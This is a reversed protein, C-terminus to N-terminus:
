RATSQGARLSRDRRPQSPGLRRQKFRNSLWVEVSAVDSTEAAVIVAHEAGAAEVIEHQLSVWAPADGHVLWRTNGWARTPKTILRGTHVYFVATDSDRAQQRQVLRNPYEAHPVRYPAKEALDSAAVPGRMLPEAPQGPVHGVSLLKFKVGWRPDSALKALEELRATEAGFSQGHLFQLRSLDNLPSRSKPRLM